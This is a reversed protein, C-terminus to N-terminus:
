LAEIEVVLYWDMNPIHSAGIIRSNTSDSKIFNVSNPQLLSEIALKPYLENLNTKGAVNPNSHIEVKGATDTIFISGQRNFQSENLLRVFGNFSTAVGSLGEGNLQQYNVYLDVRHKNKDHYVSILDQEGSELYAFYWADTAPQLARLFGEHNWYRNSSKHAFSASTLGFEKVMFGLKDILLKEKDNAAGAKIWDHIHKDNAVTKAILKMTSVRADIVQSLTILSLQTEQDVLANEKVIPHSLVNSTAFISSAIFMFLFLRKSILYVDKTRSFVSSPGKRKRNLLCAVFISIRLKCAAYYYLM